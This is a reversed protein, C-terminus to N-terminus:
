VYPNGCSKNRSEPKRENMFRSRENSLEIWRYWLFKFDQLELVLSLAGRAGYKELEFM